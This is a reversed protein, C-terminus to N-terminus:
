KGIYINNNENLLKVSVTNDDRDGRVFLYYGETNDNFKNSPNAQKGGYNGKIDEQAIIANYQYFPRCDRGMNKEAEIRTCTEDICVCFCTAGSCEPPKIARGEGKDGKERTRTEGKNFSVLYFGNDVTLAHEVSDGPKELSEAKAVLDAFGRDISTAAEATGGLTLGFFRGGIPLIVFLLIAVGLVYGIATLLSTAGVAKKGRSANGRRHNNRNSMKRDRAVIFRIM